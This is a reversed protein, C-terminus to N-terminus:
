TDFRCKISDNHIMIKSWEILITLIPCIRDMQFIFLYFFNLLKSFRLKLLKILKFNWLVSFHILFIEVIKEYLM